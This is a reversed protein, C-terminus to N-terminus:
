WKKEPLVRKMDSDQLVARATAACREWVATRMSFCCGSIEGQQAAEAAMLGDAGVSMRRTCLERALEPLQEHPIKEKINNIVIFDNGAGQMKTFRM